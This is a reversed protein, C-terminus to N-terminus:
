GDEGRAARAEILDQVIWTMHAVRLKQAAADRDAGTAAVADVVEEFKFVCRAMVAMAIDGAASEGDDLDEGAARYCEAAVANAQSIEEEGALAPTAAALALAFVLARLPRTM